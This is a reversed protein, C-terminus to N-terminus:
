LNIVNSFKSFKFNYINLKKTNKFLFNNFIKSNFHQYNVKNKQALLFDDYLIKFFTYQMDECCIFYFLLLLKKFTKKYAKKLIIKEKKQKDEVKDALTQLTKLYYNDQYNFSDLNLKKDFSAVSHSLFELCIDDTGAGQDKKLQTLYANAINTITGEIILGIIVKIEKDPWYKDTM